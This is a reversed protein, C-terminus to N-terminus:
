LELASRGLDMKGSYKKRYYKGGFNQVLKENRGHKRCTRGMESEKM